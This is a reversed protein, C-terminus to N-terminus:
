HKEVTDGRLSELWSQVDDRERSPVGLSELTAAAYGVLADYDANSIGLGEHLVKM